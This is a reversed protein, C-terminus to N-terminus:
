HWRQWWHWGRSEGEPHRHLPVGSGQPSPPPRSDPRVGRDECGMGGGWRGAWVGRGGSGQPCEWGTVLKLVTGEQSWGYSPLGLDGSGAGWSPPPQCQMPTRLLPPPSMPCVPSVCVSVLCGRGLGREGPHGRHPPQHHGCRGAGARLAGLTDRRDGDPGRHTQQPCPPCGQPCPWRRLSGGQGWCGSSASHAGLMMGKIITSM